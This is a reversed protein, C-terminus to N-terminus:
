LRVNALDILNKMRTNLDDWLQLKHEVRQFRSSFRASTSAKESTQKIEILPSDDISRIMLMLVFSDFLSQQVHRTFDELEDIGAEVLEKILGVFIDVHSALAFCRTKEHSSNQMAFILMPYAQWRLFFGKPQQDM